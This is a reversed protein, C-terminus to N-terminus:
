PVSSAFVILFITKRLSFASEITALRRKRITLHGKGAGFESAVSRAASEHPQRSLNHLQKTPVAPPELGRPSILRSISRGCIWHHIFPVNRRFRACGEILHVDKSVNADVDLSQIGSLFTRWLMSIENIFQNASPPRANRLPSLNVTWERSLLFLFCPMSDVVALVSDRLPVAGCTERAQMMPAVPIAVAISIPRWLGYIL